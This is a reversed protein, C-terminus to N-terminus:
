TKGQRVNYVCRLVMPSCRAVQCIGLERQPEPVTMFSVGNQARIPQSTVPNWLPRTLLTMSDSPVVSIGIFSRSFFSMRATMSLAFLSLWGGVTELM